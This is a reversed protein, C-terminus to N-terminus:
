APCSHLTQSAWIALLRRRHAADAKASALDRAARAADGQQRLLLACRVNSHAMETWFAVFLLLRTATSPKM